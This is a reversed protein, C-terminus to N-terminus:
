FVEAIRNKLGSNRRMPSDNKSMAAAVEMDGLLVVCERARTIATYLLNRSYMRPSVENLVIVIAKAETGQAKHITLAYALDLEELLTYEYEAEKGDEFLVTVTHEEKDVTKIFGIDGNFVGDGDEVAVDYQNRVVWSLDYDNKLQMVRDGERFIRGNFSIENKKPGAPNLNEQLVINLAEVGVRNHRMPCLVQIDRRANIKLYEPLRKAVLSVTEELCEEASRRSMIFFDKSNERAEPSLGQRIRHANLIIDGAEDQRYIYTLEAVPIKGSGILDALVSGAGVSPLQDKDGVLILRANASANILRYFLQLDVMSMEDVIILQRELPNSENRNWRGGERAPMYELLRHLTSAEEGTAEQMRKAARGTPAALAYRVKNANLYETLVKIITTKGTGPGGTIVMMPATIAEIVARRQEESLKLHTREEAKQVADLLSATPETVPVYSGMLDHVRKAIYKECAYFFLLYLREEGEEETQILKGDSRLENVANEFQVEEALIQKAFLNRLNEMTLYTHGNQASENMLHLIFAKLRVSADALFGLRSAVEDAKKFGIGEVDEIMQYPNTKLKQVAEKGWAQYIRSAYAASIGYDQLFLMIDRMASNEAYQSAISVARAETIGSVESLREPELEIIRFTDEGFKDVIRKALAEGVGKIVGSALYNRMSDKSTPLKTTYRSVKFQRGYRPHFVWAGEAEMDMGETIKPMVGVMYFRLEKDGPERPAEGEDIANQPDIKGRCILVSFGSDENSFIVHLVHAELIENEM